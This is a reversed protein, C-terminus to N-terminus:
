TVFTPDVVQLTKLSQDGLGSVTGGLALIQELYAIAAPTILEGPVLVPIGPPYPCLLDASIKSITQNVTLTQRPAFTAQRPTLVYNSRPLP